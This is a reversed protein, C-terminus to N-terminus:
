ALKLHRLQTFPILDDTDLVIAVPYEVTNGLLETSDYRIETLTAGERVHGERTEVNVKRGIIRSLDIEWVITTRM